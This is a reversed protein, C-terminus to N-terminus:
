GFYFNINVAYATHLITIVYMSIRFTKHIEISHLSFYIRTRKNLTPPSVYSRHLWPLGMSSPAGRLSNYELLLLISYRFFKTRKNM